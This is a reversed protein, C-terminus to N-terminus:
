EEGEGRSLEAFAVDEREVDDGGREVLVVLRPLALSDPLFSVPSSPPPRDCRRRSRGMRDVSGALEDEEEEMDNTLKAMPSPVICPESGLPSPVPTERPVESEGIAVGEAKEEPIPPPPGCRM